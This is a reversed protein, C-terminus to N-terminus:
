IVAKKKLVGLSPKVWAWAGYTVTDNTLNFILRKLPAFAEEMSRSIGHDMVSLCRSPSLTYPKDGEVDDFLSAMCYSLGQTHVATRFETSDYEWPYPLIQAYAIEENCPSSVYGGTGVGTDTPLDRSHYSESGGCLVYFGYEGAVSVCYRLAFSLDQYRVVDFGPALPASQSFAEKVVEVNDFTSKYRLNHSCQIEANVTGNLICSGSGLVTREGGVYAHHTEWTVGDTFLWGGREIPVVEYDQRAADVSRYYSGSLDFWSAEAYHDEYGGDSYNKRWRVACGDYVVPVNIVSSIVVDADYADVYLPCSHKATAGEFNYNAWAAYVEDIKCPLSPPPPPSGELPVFTSINLVGGRAVDFITVYQEIPDIGTNPGYTYNLGMIMLLYDGIACRETGKKDVHGIIFFREPMDDSVYPM